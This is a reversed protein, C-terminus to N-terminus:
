RDDATAAPDTAVGLLLLSAELRAWLGLADLVPNLWNTLVCYRRDSPPRHHGAHHAPSQILGVQQLVNIWRTKAGGHALTHVTSSLAAGIAAALLVISPGFMLLWLLTCIATVGWTSLNRDLVTGALFAMPERHHRRNPAVIVRGLWPIAERAIRDELWHLVGGVLDAILWGILLQGIISFLDIPM